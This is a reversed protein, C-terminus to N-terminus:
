TKMLFDQIEQLREKDVPLLRSDAPAKNVTLVHIEKPNLDGYCVKLAELEKQTTTDIRGQVLLTQVVPRQLQRAASFWEHFSVWHVPVALKRWTDPIGSDLKLCARDVKELANYVDNYHPNLRPLLGMGNSLVSVKVQPSEKDRLEILHNVIQPFAPNDTPEANGAITLDEVEKFSASEMWALVDKIVRDYSPLHKRFRINSPRGQNYGRFCYPCNFSCYKGDGSLNIGLSLGFRRSRVPGYIINKNVRRVIPRKKM